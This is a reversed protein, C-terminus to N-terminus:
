CTGRRLKNTMDTAGSHMTNLLPSHCLPCAGKAVYMCMRFDGGRCGYQVVNGGLWGILRILPIYWQIVFSSSLSGVSELLVGAGAGALRGEIGDEILEGVERKVIM